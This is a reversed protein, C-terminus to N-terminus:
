TKKFKKFFWKSKKKSSKHTLCEDDYCAIWSFCDHKQQKKLKKTKTKDIIQTFQKEFNVYNKQIKDNDFIKEFVNMLKTKEDFNMTKLKLDNIWKIIIKANTKYNKNENIETKKASNLYFTKFGQFLFKDINFNNITANIQTITSNSNQKQENLVNQFNQSEDIKHIKENASDTSLIEITEYDINKKHKSNKKWCLTLNDDFLPKWNAIKQSTARKTMHIFRMKKKFKWFMM